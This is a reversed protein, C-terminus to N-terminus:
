KFMFEPSALLLGARLNPPESAIRQWRAPAVFPRLFSPDEGRRGVALAFDTRRTLAEPALWTAADTKYGDPTRWGHMPQGAGGLFALSLAIDSRDRAGGAAALASCAYDVPTKFLRNGAQWFEPADVLAQMVVRIDGQSTTFVAALHDVLRAPPQDAVFFEALRLAIRRATAPHRALMRIAAEGERVSDSRFTQGMLVKTGQDHLREAFRFGSDDTPNVTWGSLIRALQRVDAQTYGGQAGLTHLEMLERAYNENLGRRQGNAGPSGDAVSQAQDLYYLMAPHRASALLLDEFRGLANPRIANLVYHGIFPRVTGKGTYVNLHNFWFETMRALVPPELDARSCALMRWAAAGQVMQRSFPFTPERNMAQKPTAEMEVATPRSARFAAVEARYQAFLSPLPSDIAAIEEPLWPKRQSALQAADLQEAVWARPDVQKSSPGPGYGLRSQVRMLAEPGTVMAGEQAQVISTWAGLWALGLVAAALAIRQM